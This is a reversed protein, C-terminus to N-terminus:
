KIQTTKQIYQEQLKLVINYILEIDEGRFTCSKILLLLFELERANLESVPAPPNNPQRIKDILGM